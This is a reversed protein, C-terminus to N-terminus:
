NKCQRVTRSELKKRQQQAPLVSTEEGNPYFDQSGSQKPLSPPSCKGERESTTKLPEIQQASPQDDLPLVCGDESGDVAGDSAGTRVDTSLSQPNDERVVNTENVKTVDSPNLLNEPGPPELVAYCPVAEDTAVKEETVAPVPENDPSAGHLVVYVPLNGDVRSNNSNDETKAAGSMKSNPHRQHVQQAAEDPGPGELVDYTPMTGGTKNKAISCDGRGTQNASDPVLDVTAYLGTDTPQQYNTRYDLPNWPQQENTSKGNPCLLQNRNLLANRCNLSTEDYNPLLSTHSSTTSRNEQNHDLQGRQSEGPCSDVFCFAFKIASNLVFYYVM